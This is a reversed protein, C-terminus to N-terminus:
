CYLLQVVTVSGDLPRQIDNTDASNKKAIKFGSFTISRYLMSVYENM